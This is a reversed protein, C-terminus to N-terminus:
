REWFKLAGCWLYILNKVNLRLANTYLEKKRTGVTGPSTSFYISAISIFFDAPGLLTGTKRNFVNMNNKATQNDLDTFIQKSTPTKGSM